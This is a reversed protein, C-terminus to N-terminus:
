RTQRSLAGAFEILRNMQAVGQNSYKSFRFDEVSHRHEELSTKVSRYTTSTYITVHVATLVRSGDAEVDYETVLSQDSIESLPFTRMTVSLTPHPARGGHGACHGDKGFWLIMRGGEILAVECWHMEGWNHTETGRSLVFASVREFDVVGRLQDIVLDANPTFVEVASELRPVTAWDAGPDFM